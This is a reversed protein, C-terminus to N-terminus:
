MSCKLLPFCSSHLLKGTYCYHVLDWLADPDVDKLVVEEQTAERLDNTFMAAFYDSAAALVLRHAPIRRSEAILTVDCLERRMLYIEMKRLSCEAHNISRFCEDHSTPSSEGSDKMRCPLASYSGSM